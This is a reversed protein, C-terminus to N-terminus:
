DSNATLKEHNHGCVNVLTAEVADGVAEGLDSVRLACLWAAASDEITRVEGERERRM